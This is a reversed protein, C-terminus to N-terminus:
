RAAQGPLRIRWASVAAPKYAFRGNTHIYSARLHEGLEPFRDDVIRLARTIARHTTEDARRQDDTFARPKFGIGTHKAVERQIRELEADIGAVTKWEGQTQAAAREVLLPATSRALFEETKDDFVRGGGAHAEPWLDELTPQPHDDPDRVRGALVARIEGAAFERFPDRLLVGLALLGEVQTFSRHTGRYTVECQDGDCTLQDLTGLPAGRHPPVAAIGKSGGAHGAQSRSAVLRDAAVGAFATRLLCRDPLRGEVMDDLHEKTQKRLGDLTMRAHRKTLHVFRLATGDPDPDDDLVADYIQGYEALLELDGLTVVKRATRVYSEATMQDHWLPLEDLFVDRRYRSAPDYDELGAAVTAFRRDVCQSCGGCHPTAAPLGRWKSCSLTLPLLDSCGTAKLVELEETRTRGLLPNSVEPGAPFVLEALRNFRDLFRPHTSRSALAGVLQDNTPLNVSVPGNDGFLVRGVGLEAAFAAGLSAYLFGRSRQSSEPPDGGRGHVALGLLPFAWGSFRERARALLALQRAKHASTSWHGVAVPRDGNAAAELLVCLSDVGGSFPVLARPAGLVEGGEVKMPMQRLEPPGQSFAFEWDDDTLFRLAAALREVVEPASWFAPDAAPVCLALRRRWRAAHADREGGRSVLQDARYAYAAIRVLDAARPGVERLLAGGLGEIGLNLDASGGSSTIARRESWQQAALTSPVPAGDCRVLASRVPPGSM